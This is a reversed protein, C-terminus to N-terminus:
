ASLEYARKLWSVLEADVDRPSTLMVELHWRNASARERKVVRKSRIDDDAKITLRIADKRTAVGAFATRRNLHISTKKPDESFEGFRAAAQKLRDYTARVSANKGAFHQDVTATM